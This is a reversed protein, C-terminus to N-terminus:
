GRANSNILEAEDKQRCDQCIRAKVSKAKAAKRKNILKWSNNTILREVPDEERVLCQMPL